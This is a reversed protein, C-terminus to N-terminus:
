TPPPQSPLRPGYTFKTTHSPCPRCTSGPQSASRQQSTSSQEPTYRQVDTFGPRCPFHQRGPVNGAPPPGEYPAADYPAPGNLPRPFEKYRLLGSRPAPSSSASASGHSSDLYTPIIAAGMAGAVGIITAVFTGNLAGWIAKIRSLPRGSRRADRSHKPM